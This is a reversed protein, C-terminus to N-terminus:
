GPQSPFPMLPLLVTKHSLFYIGVAQAHADDFVPIGTPIGTILLDAIQDDLILLDALVQLLGQVAGTNGLDLDLPAVFDDGDEEVAGPRTHDDALAALLDLLITESHLLQDALLHAQVDDLDAVGVHVGLQHRLVDGLLQLLTDRVAAGHLVGHGAGHAGAGLADLNAAGATQASTLDGAHLVIM